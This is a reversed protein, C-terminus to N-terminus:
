GGIAQVAASLYARLEIGLQPAILMVVLAIVAIVVSYEAMTQGHDDTLHLSRRRLSTM